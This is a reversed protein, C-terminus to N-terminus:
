RNVTITRAESHTPTRLVVLYRGGPLDRADFRVEHTDAAMTLGDVLVAVRRGLLDYVELAVESAEPLVFRVSTAEGFPNPANAMLWRDGSAGGPADPGPQDEGATSMLADGGINSSSVDDWYTQGTFTHWYRVRVEMGVAGAIPNLVFAYQTWGNDAQRPLLPIVQPNYEGNLRIDAGGIEGYGAAGSEMQNYWLATLGVNNDGMGITAPDANGVTKLWYSVLVPQGVTVPVRESIGVAESAAPDLQEIRLSRSGTHAEADTSSVVFAQTAPWDGGRPFDNWFYYWGGPVDVNANHIDGPWEASTTRVFFDDAWVSGSATAGKRLVITASTADAPFTIAGLAASSVEVWGGSTPATQPLDLVLPAGLLDAGAADRFTYVLQFKADDAGPATNVGETWVWAGFELDTNGPFRPVWNLVAEPMTWASAGAGGLALSHEATRWRDSAWTAGSGTPEWYSPASAAEFGGDSLKNTAALGSVQAQAPLGGLLLTVLGLAASSLLTRTM